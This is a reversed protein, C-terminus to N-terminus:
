PKQSLIGKLVETGEVKKPNILNEKLKSKHESLIEDNVLYDQEEWNIHNEVNM